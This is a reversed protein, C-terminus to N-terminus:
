SPSAVRREHGVPRMALRVGASSASTLAAPSRGPAAPSGRGSARSGARSGARGTCSRRRRTRARELHGAAPGGDVGEVVSIGSTSRASGGGSLYSASSAGTATSAARRGPSAVEPGAPGHRELVREALELEPMQSRSPPTAGRRRRPPRPRSPHRGGPPARRARVAGPRQGHLGGPVGVSSAASNSVPRSWPARALGAAGACTSGPSPPVTRQTTTALSSSSARCPRRRGPGPRSTRRRPRARGVDLRARLDRAPRPRQGAHGPRREALALRAASREPSTPTSWGPTATSPTSRRRSSPRTPRSRGPDGRGRRRGRRGGPLARGGPGPRGGPGGALAGTSTPPRRRPGVDAAKRLISAIRAHAYQVYYVPNENSQKKALEIDFDIGSTPSAHPSSGARPTSASRPSCSTSRSSSAPGSPCRSRSATACSASGRTSCCRSRTATTAWPRPRTGSGRSRGTTTPAGSTSSTTSAAASSRPSTASTPRSTPRSATRASLDGPGQRRRLRDLPVLARRGARLRPRARAAARGRARGLGGRPAPGREDLRRVPRRPRDLSAEIGERVRGAAWHGVIGDTDADPATAQPGSTTPCRPRSTARRLRRPLRGRPGARRAPARRGVRRPQPDPRGLRQLLVRAHGAPRGGRPRPEAPRRRVRRPRQRRAAPRDPQGVRVRRQGVRPTAADGPGM